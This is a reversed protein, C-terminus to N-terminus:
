EHSIKEVRLYVEYRRAVTYTIDEIYLGQHALNFYITNCHVIFRIDINPFLITLSVSFHLPNRGNHKIKLVAVFLLNGKKYDSIKLFQIKDLVSVLSSLM